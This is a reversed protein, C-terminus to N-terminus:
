ALELQGWAGMAGGAVVVAGSVEVYEMALELAGAIDDSSKIMNGLSTAAADALTATNALVTVADAIGLSVSPGVTASSTCLGVGESTDEFLIEVPPAEDGAFIKARRKKGGALFIDGGNEVIVQGSHALLGRGVYQAIAGAVSAMPGVNFIEAAEAMDKVIDPASGEVPMPRFSMGFQLHSEMYKELEARGDELHMKAEDALNGSTCVFLDSEGAAVRYCTLGKPVILGRYERELYPEEFAM